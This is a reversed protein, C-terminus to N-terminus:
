VEHEAELVQGTAIYFNGHENKILIYVEYSDAVDLKNTKVSATFGSYDYHFGDDMAATVDARQQMQTPISFVAGTSNSKLAVETNVSNLDEGQWVAWGTITSITDEMTCSDICYSMQDSLSYASIDVDLVKSEDWYFVRVILFIMMAFLFLVIKINKNNVMGNMQIEKLHFMGEDRAM